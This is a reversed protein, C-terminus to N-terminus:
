EDDDEWDEDDEEDTAYIWDVEIPDVAVVELEDECIDCYVRQGLTPTGPVRLEENCGPCTVYPM